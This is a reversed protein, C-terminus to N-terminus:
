DQTGVNTPNPRVVVAIGSPGIGISEILRVGEDSSYVLAKTKNSADRRCNPSDFNEASSTLGVDGVGEVPWARRRPQRVPRLRSSKRPTITMVARKQGSTATCPTAATRHTSDAKAKQPTARGERPPDNNVSM